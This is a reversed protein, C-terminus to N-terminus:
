SSGSSIPGTTVEFFQSHVLPSDEVEGEVVELQSPWRPPPGQILSELREVVDHASKPRDEPDRQLLELVLADLDAPVDQQLERVPVVGGGLTRAVIGAITKGPFASKGTLCRYMVAGLSFLDSSQKYGDGRLAEPALFGPTGFVRGSNEVLESIWNALGFDTVKVFGDAGLMVNGPKIDHHVLESDHAAALARAVQVALHVTEDTPMRLRHQLYVELSPGEVYEMAIFASPPVDGVDFIAVINPQSFRAGMVAEHLLRSVLDARSMSSQDLDLKVTKLAVPRQLKPDWGRFVTGMSGEGLLEVVEYRGLYSGPKIEEEGAKRLVPSDEQAPLLATSGAEAREVLREVRLVLEEPDFPKGLYDDAGERLGRIREPPSDLSSLFLVPLGRTRPERQLQNLLEYGSRGPMMIDLVAASVRTKTVAELAQDSDEFALVGHGAAKLAAEIVVLITPDDDVVLITAM